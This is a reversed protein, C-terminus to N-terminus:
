GFIAGLYARDKSFRKAANLLNPPVTPPQHTRILLCAILLLGSVLGASARVGNAFGLSGNLTNNLMIPHIIAGMSSGSAVITMALARRRQFYQSVVAVSPIYMMGTGIGAGLGQSLFIQWRATLIPIICFVRVNVQYYHNPKALSLMFLSFSILM